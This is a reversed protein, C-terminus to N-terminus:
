AGSGQVLKRIASIRASAPDHEKFLGIGLDAGDLRRLVEIGKLPDFGADMMLQAGLRDASRETERVVEGSRGLTRGIGRKVAASRMIAAHGLINHAMEHAILFALEDDNRLKALLGTTLFVHRGDAYANRQGSRALFVRSPCGQPADILLMHSVSGRLVTVTFPKAATQELLDHILDARAHAQAASFPADAGTEPLLPRGDISLLVDGARMGAQAAPGTPVIGIAAPGRDLGLAVVMAARDAREFQSLHQLIIGLLPVPVPCRAVGSRALKFAIEAVRADEERGPLLFPGDASGFSPVSRAIPTTLKVSPSLAL